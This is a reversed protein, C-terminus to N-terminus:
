GLILALTMMLIFGSFFSIISIKKSASIADPMLECAAVFIMIAAAFALMFPLLFIFQVGLCFALIAFPIEVFAVIFSSMFARIKSKGNAYVPFSISSGEPINQLAIGIAVMIASLYASKTGLAMSSAFAFGISLGEPINHLGVGLMLLKTNIKSGNSSSIKDLLFFIIVAVAFCIPLVIYTKLMLEDCYEMASFILSFIASAIMIGSSFSNLFTIIKISDKKIFFIISAGLLAFLFSIIAFLLCTFM